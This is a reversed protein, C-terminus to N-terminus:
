LRSFAKAFQTSLSSIKATISLISIGSAVIVPHVEDNEAEFDDFSDLM